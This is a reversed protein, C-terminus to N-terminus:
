QGISSKNGIKGDSQGIIHNVKRQKTMSWRITSPTDMSIYKFKYSQVMIRYL